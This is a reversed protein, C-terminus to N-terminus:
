VLGATLVSVRCPQCALCIASGGIRAERALLHFQLRLMYAEEQRTDKREEVAGDGGITAGVSEVMGVVEDAELTRM